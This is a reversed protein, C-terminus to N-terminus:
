SIIRLQLQYNDYESQQEEQIQKASAVASDSCYKDLHILELTPIEGIGAPIEELNFCWQICLHRLRPFNTEDARWRVLMYCDYLRLFHLSSFEDGEAIEWEGNAEEKETENSEFTCNEIRLVELNPLACLATTAAPTIVCDGLNLERLTSPFKPVRSSRWTLTQLKHLHSLDVVESKGSSGEVEYWIELSKINPISELFGRRIVSPSIRVGRLTQLKKLVIKKMYDDGIRLRTGLIILHRLESMEWLETPCYDDHLDVILTQLNCLRSIGSRPLSECYIPLYRLNVLQLIEEPFEIKFMRIKYENMKLFDLVRLLRLTFVMPLVNRDLEVFLLFSRVLSMESSSAYEDDEMGYSTHISVRRLQNSFTSNKVHLFKEDDAKRICLDRLLDHMNYRKIEGYGGYTTIVSVLNREVLSKLYDEAEEELSKDGNSKVFGEAVWMWILRLPDIEYDEPFAAMYLFCPKLHLPLHNYSLSLINLFQKDSEAIAARVDNGINEWVGKLREVKSLLGGIVNIALPLGGCDSSIKKGIGQLEHPWDEEGFVIQSLLDWSQSESLLQVKHHLCKSDAYKAVDSERTTIVIRSGNNYDPFYRRIEDWFTTSWIDDLVIMYRRGCLSRYLIDKLEGDGKHEYDSGTICRLLSLLISRMNYDQSITTWALYSFHDVILSDQYLTRALTTKGIGGMGVIPLIELKTQNGTLRDKLQMLDEDVGVVVSKSSSFSAGSWSSGTPKKNTEVEVLKVVQEIVSDLKQTLLLVDPTLVDPTTDEEEEIGGMGVIPLIELKSQMGTLRDQLQKLDEDVGVVVSKSSSFSAGDGSWSSGTPKKNTEVEVLKVVQEIVSDLKQTVLLVDPTLPTFNVGEPMSLLREVMHSEVIDEAENAVDRIQCQLSPIKTLLPTKELIQQLYSAKQLLSQLQPKEQGLIWRTQQPDLIGQLITILSQLNYAM